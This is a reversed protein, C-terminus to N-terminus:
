INKNIKYNREKADKDEKYFDVKVDYNIYGKEKYKNIYNNFELIIDEDNKCINYIIEDLIEDNYFEKSNIFYHNFNIKDNIFWWKRCFFCVKQNHNKYMIEHKCVKKLKNSKNSIENAINEQQIKLNNLLDRLEKLVELSKPNKFYSIGDSNLFQELSRMKNQLKLDNKELLKLNLYIKNEM